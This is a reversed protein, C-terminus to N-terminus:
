TDWSYIGHTWVAIELPTRVTIELHEFHVKYTDLRYNELHGMYTHTDWRCNRPSGVTIELHGLQERYHDIDVSSLELVPRSILKRPM